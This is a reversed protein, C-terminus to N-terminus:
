RREAVIRAYRGEKAIESHIVAFGTHNLLYVLDERSFRNHEVFHIFFDELEATTIDKGFLKAADTQNRVYVELPARVWDTIYFRGGRRMVRSIEQLARLPQDMEHLVVSCMVADVSGDDLPLHPDHLDEAMIECGAPLDEVAQLMYPAVEVGIARIGPYRRALAQVFLGPGAGLDLVVPQASYAPEVWQRWASWFTEDFRSDFSEKMLQVFRAGDRHHKALMEETQRRRDSM